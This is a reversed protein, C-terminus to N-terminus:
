AIATSRDKAQARNRGRRIAQFLPRLEQLHHYRRQWAELSRLAESIAASRLDADTMLRASSIYCRGDDGDASIYAITERSAGTRPDDQIVYISRILRRAQEKRHEEAARTNDWEFCRHLPADAPRSSEVVGEPTLQKNRRAIEALARSAISAQVPFRSGDRFKVKPM